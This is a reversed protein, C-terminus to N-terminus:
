RSARRWPCPRGPRGSPAGAGGRPRLGGSTSLARRPGAAGAVSVLDRVGPHDFGIGHVAPSLELARFRDAERRYEAAGRHPNGFYAPLLYRM